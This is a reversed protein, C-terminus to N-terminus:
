FPAVVFTQKEGNSNTVVDTSNSDSSLTIITNDGLHRRFYLLVASLSLVHQRQKSIEVKSQAHVIQYYSSLPWFMLFLKSGIVTKFPIINKIAM